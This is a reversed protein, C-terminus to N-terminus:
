SPRRLEAAGELNSQEGADICLVLRPARRSAPPSRHVIGLGSNGPYAEGKFLGVDNTDLRRILRRSRVIDQNRGKGLASRNVNSEELYETGPGSYTCLLRLGVYDAHFLRCALGRVTGLRLRVAATGAIRGFWQALDLVDAQWRVVVARPAPFGSIACAVAGRSRSLDVTVDISASMGSLLAASLGDQERSHGRKWIALNFAPRRIDALDLRDRSEMVRPLERDLM